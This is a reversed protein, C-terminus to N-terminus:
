VIGKLEDANLDRLFAYRHALALFSTPVTFLLGVGLCLLGVLNILLIKFDLGFLEGEHGRALRRSINLAKVPGVGYDILAFSYFQYRLAQWVGYFLAPIGIIAGPLALWPGWLTGMAIMGVVIAFPWGVLVLFLIGAVFNYLVFLPSVFIDSLRSKVGDYFKLSVNAGGLVIVANIMSSTLMTSLYELSFDSQEGVGLSYELIQQAGYLVGIILTFLIFFPKNSMTTKWGFGVPDPTMVRDSIAQNVTM